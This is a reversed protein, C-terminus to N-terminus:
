ALVEEQTAGKSVQPRLLFIPDRLLVSHHVEMDFELYRELLLRRLWVLGLGQAQGQSRAFAQVFGRVPQCDGREIAPLMSCLLKTSWHAMQPEPISFRAKVPASTRMWQLNHIYHTSYSTEDIRLVKYGMHEAYAQRIAFAEQERAKRRGASTHKCDILVPRQGRRFLLGDYTLLAPIRTAFYRPHAIGLKAALETTIERPMPGQEHYDEFQRLFEAALFANREINSFLTVTRGLKRSALRTTIGRSSIDRFTLWPKYNPGKGQGYGLKIRTAITAEDFRVIPRGM